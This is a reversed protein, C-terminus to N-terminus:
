SITIYDTKVDHALWGYKVLQGVAHRFARGYVKCLVKDCYADVDERFMGKRAAIEELVAREIPNLVAADDFTQQDDGRRSM